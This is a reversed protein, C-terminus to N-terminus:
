RGDAGSQVAGGEGATSRWYMGFLCLYILDGMALLPASAAIQSALWAQVLLVVVVGKLLLGVLIIPRYRQPDIGILWYLYGFGVVAAGMFRMFLLEGSTGPLAFIQAMWQPALFLPLGALANFLAGTGFLIRPNM